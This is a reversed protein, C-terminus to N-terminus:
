NILSNKLKELNFKKFASDDYLNQSNLIIYKDFDKCNDVYLQGAELKKITREDFMMYDAKVEVLLTIGNKLVIKFDPFYLKKKDEFYYEINLNSRDISIVEDILDIGEIVDKEWSSDYKILKNSKNSFVKGSYYINNNGVKDPNNVLGYSILNQNCIEISKM